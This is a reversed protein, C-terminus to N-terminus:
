LTIVRYM